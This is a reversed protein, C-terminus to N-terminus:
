SAFEFGRRLVFDELVPTNADFLVTHGFGDGARVFKVARGQVDGPSKLVTALRGGPALQDLIAEPVEEVAGEIIIADYPAEERFGEAPPGELVVANDIGTEALNEQAAAVIAGVKEIGVVSEVMRSLVACSYGSAAGIDLVSEGPQLGLEQVLRAFVMPELLFRGHGVVLDEDVYALEERGQGAFVERPVDRFAELLAPNTVRNTRLQTEIMLHRRKEHTNM